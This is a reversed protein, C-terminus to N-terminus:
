TEATLKIGLEVLRIKHSILRYSWIRRKWFWLSNKSILVCLSVLSNLLDGEDQFRAYDNLYNAMWELMWGSIRIRIHFLKVIYYINASAVSLLGGVLSVTSQKQSRLFNGFKLSRKASLARMEPPPAPRSVLNPVTANDRRLAHLYDVAFLKHFFGYLQLFGLTPSVTLRNPVYTKEEFLKMVVFLVTRVRPNM